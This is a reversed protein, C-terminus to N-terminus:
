NPKAGEQLEAPPELLPPPAGEDKSPKKAKKNRIASLEESYKMSLEQREVLDLTKPDPMDDDEDFVPQRSGGIPLGRAYRILIERVSMTQDPVTLSPETNVEGRQRYLHLNLISRFVPRESILGAVLDSQNTQM